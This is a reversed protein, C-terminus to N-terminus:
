ESYVEGRKIFDEDTMNYIYDLLKVRFTGIGQGAETVSEHAYEGAIGLMVVAAAAATLMDGAAAMAGTMASCMCGTGTVDCLMEHGNRIYIIQEGDSVIDILGTACVVCGCKEAYARVLEGVESYNDQTVADDASADVGKSSIKAGALSKIESLNGRIIDPKVEEIMEADIRDRLASAGAGVPDLVIPRGLERAAKAATKMAALYPTDLLGLNLVLADSIKMIDPMEEEIEAMIPSAGMALLMNACDNITVRNTLCEVLPREARMNGILDIINKLVQNNQKM